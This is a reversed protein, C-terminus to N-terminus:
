RRTGYGLRATDLREFEQPLSPGRNSGDNRRVLGVAFGAHREFAHVRVILSTKGAGSPGIVHLRQPAPADTLAHMLKVEPRDDGTLGLEGSGVYVRARREDSTADDFVRNDYIRRLSMGAASRPQARLAQATTRGPRQARPDIAARRGSRPAVLDESRVPAVVRTPRAVRPDHASVPRRLGQLEAVAMAESRGLSSARELHEQGGAASAPDDSRDLIDQAARIASRPHAGPIPGHRSLTSLEDDTLGLRLLRETEERQLPPIEIVTSWFADAPPTRLAASDRPRVAVASTHGLAWLEDRLRGFVDYGIDTDILGDVLIVQPEDRRLRRAARLLGQGSSRPAAEDPDRGDLPEDLGADVLDLLGTPDDAVAANIIVAPRDQGALVTAAKRLLTSKGSGPEGLLLVNRGAALPESLRRELEPRELYLDADLGDVLLPRDRFRM